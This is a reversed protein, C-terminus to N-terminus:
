QSSTLSSGTDEGGADEEGEQQRHTGEGEDTAIVVNTKPEITVMHVTYGREALQTRLKAQNATSEILIRADPNNLNMFALNFEKTASAYQTVMFSVGAFIPPQNLTVITETKGDKITYVISEVLKEILRVTEVRSATTMKPAETQVVGQMEFAVQPQVQAIAVGTTLPAVQGIAREEEHRVNKTKTILEAQEVPRGKLGKTDGQLNKGEDGALLPKADPLSTDVPATMTEFAIDDTEDAKAVATEPTPPAVSFRTPIKQEPMFATKIQPLAGKTTPVQPSTTIPTKVGVKPAVVPVDEPIDLTNAKVVVGRVDKPMKPTITVPVEELQPTPAMVPAKEPIIQKSVTGLIPTPTILPVEEPIIESITDADVQPTELPIVSSLAGTVAGLADKADKMTGTQPTIVPIVKSAVDPVIGMPTVPVDGKTKIPVTKATGVPMPPLLTSPIVKEIVEPVMKPTATAMAGLVKNPIAGPSLLQPVEPISGPIAEPMADRVTEPIVGQTAGLTTTTATDTVGTAKTTTGPVVKGTADPKDSLLTDELEGTYTDDPPAQENLKNKLVEKFSTTPKPTDPAVPRSPANPVRIPQGQTPVIADDDPNISPQLFNNPLTM